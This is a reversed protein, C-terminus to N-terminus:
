GVRIKWASSATTGPEVIELPLLKERTASPVSMTVPLVGRDSVSMANRYEPMNRM